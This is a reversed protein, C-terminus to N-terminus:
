FIQYKNLSIANKQYKHSIYDKVSQVGCAPQIKALNIEKKSKFPFTKNINLAPTSINRIKKILNASRERNKSM